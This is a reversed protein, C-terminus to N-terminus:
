WLYFGMLFILWWGWYDWFYGSDVRDGFRGTGGGTGGFGWGSGEGACTGGGAWIWTYFFTMPEIFYEFYNKPGHLHGLTAVIWQLFPM